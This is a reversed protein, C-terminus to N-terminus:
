RGNCSLAKNCGKANLGCGLAGRVSIDPSPSILAAVSGSPRPTVEKRLSGQRLVRPAFFVASVAGLLLTVHYTAIRWAIVVGAARLGLVEGLFLLLSGEAIGSGGPSIPLSSLALSVHVALSATLFDVGLGAGRFLIWLSFGQLLLQPLTLLAAPLIGIRLGRARAQAAADLFNRWFGELRLSVREGRGRAVAKLVGTMVEMPRTTRRLISFLLGGYFSLSLSVVALTLAGVTAAGFYLAFIAAALAVLMVAVIDFLLEVYAVWAAAGSNGLIKYLWLGRVVEGGMFGPMSTSALESSARALFGDSLRVKVGGLSSALVKLRWGQFAFRVVNAGAALLFAGPGVVTIEGPDIGSLIFILVLFLISVGFALLLLRRSYAEGRV